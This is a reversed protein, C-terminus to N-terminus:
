KFKMFGFVIRSNSAQEYSEQKIRSDLLYQVGTSYLHKLVVKAELLGHINNFLHKAKEDADGEIVMSQLENIQVNKKEIEEKNRKIQRELEGRRKKAEGDEEEDCSSVVYTSDMDVRRQKAAARDRLAKLREGLIVLEAASKKREDILKALNARAEALSVSLELENAIWNNGTQLKSIELRKGMSAIYAHHSLNDLMKSHLANKRQLDSDYETLQFQKQAQKLTFEKDAPSTDHSGATV